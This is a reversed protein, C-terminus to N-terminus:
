KSKKDVGKNGSLIGAPVGRDHLSTVQDVMLSM